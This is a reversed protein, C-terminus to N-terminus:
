QSRQLEYFQWFQQAWGHYDGPHYRKENIVTLGVSEILRQIDDPTRFFHKVGVDLLQQV